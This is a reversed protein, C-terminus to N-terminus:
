TEEAEVCTERAETCITSANQAINASNEASLSYGHVESRLSNAEIMSIGATEITIEIETQNIETNVVLDNNVYTPSTKVSDIVMFPIVSTVTRVRQENDIIKLEGFQKGKKLASTFNKDLVVDIRKSSIDNFTVTVGCLSFTASFGTFDIESNFNIVVYQDDVFNTDDGKVLTIYDM